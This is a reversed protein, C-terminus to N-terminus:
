FAPNLGPTFIERPFSFLERLNVATTQFINEKLLINQWVMLFEFSTLNVIAAAKGPWEYIFLWTLKLSSFINGIEKVLRQRKFRPWDMNDILSSYYCTNKHCFVTDKSWKLYFQLFKSCSMYLILSNIEAVGFGNKKLIRATFAYFGGALCCHWIPGIWGM